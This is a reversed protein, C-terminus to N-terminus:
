HAHAAAHQRAILALPVEVMRGHTERAEEGHAPEFGQAMLVKELTGQRYCTEAFLQLAEVLNELAETESDGQSHVDLVECASYFKGGEQRVTAPVHMRFSVVRQEQKLQVAGAMKRFLRLM